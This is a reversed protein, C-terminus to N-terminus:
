TCSYNLIVSWIIIVNTCVTDTAQINLRVIYDQMVPTSFEKIEPAM